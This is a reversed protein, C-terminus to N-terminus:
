VTLVCVRGNDVRYLRDACVIGATEIFINVFLVDFGYPGRECFFRLLKRIRTTPLNGHIGFVQGTLKFRLSCNSRDIATAEHQDFSWRAGEEVHVVQEFFNLM